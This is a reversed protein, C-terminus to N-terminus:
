DNNKMKSQSEKIKEALEKQENEHKEQQKRILIPQIGRILRVGKIANYVGFGVGIVGIINDDPFIIIGAVVLLLGIVLFFKGNSPKM